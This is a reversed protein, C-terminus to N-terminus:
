CEVKGTGKEVVKRVCFLLLTTPFEVAPLWPLETFGSQVSRPYHLSIQDIARPTTHNKPM